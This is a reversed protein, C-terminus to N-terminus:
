LVLGAAVLTDEIQPQSFTQWGPAMNAAVQAAFRVVEFYRGPCQKSPDSSGGPVRDPAVLELGGNLMCLLSCLRVANIAQAAPLKDRRFDGVLAVGIGDRNAGIAHAGVASLPLAQEILADTRIVVTYAMRGIGKIRADRRAIEAADLLENDIPDPNDDTRVDFSVRHIVVRRKDALATRPAKDGLCEAIRDQVLTPRLRAAGGCEAITVLLGRPM